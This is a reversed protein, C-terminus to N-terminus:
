SIRGWLPKNEMRDRLTGALAANAPDKLTPDADLVRMAAQRAYQLLEADEILDAIKLEPIGSQQTGM